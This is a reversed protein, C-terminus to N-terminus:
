EPLCRRLVRLNRRDARPSDKPTELILPLGFFIRRSFIRRFGEVGIIGRGIHQHIDRRSGRLTKSDNVHFARIQKLGLARDFEEFTKEIGSASTLDYGAALAHCTDFCVGLRSRHRVNSFIDAIERFSSGIRRGGGAMNEVLLRTGEGAAGLVADLASSLREVGRNYDASPSYAGPHLVLYEAGLKECRDLDERLARVSRAYLAADSTCLNPLYPSHVVVPGLGLRERERRFDSFETPEYVRTRWGRPSQTFIQLTECGLAAAERLAGV